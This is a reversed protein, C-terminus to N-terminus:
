VRVTIYIHVAFLCHVVYWTVPGSVKVNPYYKKIGNTVQEYFLKYDNGNLGYRWWGANPENWIHYFEDNINNNNFQMTCNVFGIMLQTWWGDNNIPVGLGGNTENYLCHYKSPLSQTNCNENLFYFSTLHSKYYNTNWIYKPPYTENFTKCANGSNIWEKLENTTNCCQIGENNNTPLIGDLHQGFGFGNVGLTLHYYNLLSENSLPKVNSYAALNLLYNSTTDYGNKSILTLSSINVDLGDIILLLYTVFLLLFLQTNQMM